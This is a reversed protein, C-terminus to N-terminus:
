PPLARSLFSLVIMGFPSIIFYKIQVEDVLKLLKTNPINQLSPFTNHDSRMVKKRISWRNTQKDIAKKIISYLWPQKTQKCFILEIAYNNLKIFITDYTFCILFSYAELYWYTCQPIDKSAKTESSSNFSKQSYNFKEWPKKFDSIVFM